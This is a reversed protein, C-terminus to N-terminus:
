HVSAAVSKLHDLRANSRSIFDALYRLGTDALVLEGLLSRYSPADPATRSIVACLEEVRGPAAKSAATLGALLRQEAVLETAIQAAPTM